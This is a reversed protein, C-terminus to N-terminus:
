NRDPKRPRVPPVYGPPPAVPPAIVPPVVLPPPVPQAQQALVIPPMKVGTGVVTLNLEPHVQEAV